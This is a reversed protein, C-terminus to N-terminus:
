FDYCQMIATPDTKRIADLLGQLTVQEVLLPCRPVQSTRWNMAQQIIEEADPSIANEVFKISVSLDTLAGQLARNARTAYSTRATFILSRVKELRHLLELRAKQLDKLTQDWASLEKLKDRYSSEDTALKKIYALDLRIGQAQLDKRKLDIENQLQQERTKWSTLQELVRTSFTGASSLLDAEITAVKQALETTWALIQAFETRGVKLNEPKAATSIATLTASIASQKTQQPLIGLQREIGERVSREEAVKRELAVVETAQATELAKLQQQTSALLRQYDPIRLVHTQAKEVSTQNDLLSTRIEDEEARLADLNIFEDLYQLLARPDNQANISTQATENQGYSEIPFVAGVEPSSLNEAKDNVRRRVIHQQGAQDVWVLHISDPWIESDVLKSPSATPSLSRVAEFATSKGAGRGGIVCNLNRSFHIVQGDLFGGEVKMGMVYPFSAPIENELRIRADADQLAIRLGDFSPADMKVRTLKRQGKANKGLAALSHSDSFLLRALFQKEGLKLAEIRRKGLAQREKDPDSDSYSITSSASQLEIGLLSAHRMIDGKHPPNGVIKKELGGEADVHALVAFGKKTDILNLCDLLSTQCRSDGTGKGAINLKGHFTTLDDLDKFYVLLHGEPTTLEVGPIVFVKSTASVKVANPLNSIDNHDTIAIVQLNEKSATEFIGEVTMTKDSVDHSAGFSHIHLDARYFRAGSPIVVIEDAVTPMPNILRQRPQHNSHGLLGPQITKLPLTYFCLSRTM